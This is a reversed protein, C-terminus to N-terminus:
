IIDYKAEKLIYGYRSAFWYSLCKIFENDTMKSTIIDQIREKGQDFLRNWKTKIYEDHTKKSSEYLEKNLRDIKMKFINNDKSKYILEIM